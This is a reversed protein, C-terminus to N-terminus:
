GNQGSPGYQPPKVEWLIPISISIKDLKFMLGTKLFYFKLFLFFSKFKWEAFVGSLDKKAVAGVQLESPPFHAWGWLHCISSPKYRKGPGM